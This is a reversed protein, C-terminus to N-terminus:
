FSNFDWDKTDDDASMLKQKRKRDLEGTKPRSKSSRGSMQSATERGRSKGERTEPKSPAAKGKGKAGKPDAKGAIEAQEELKKAEEEEAKKEAEEDALKMM